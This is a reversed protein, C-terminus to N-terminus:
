GSNIYIYQNSMTSLFISFYSFQIRQCQFTWHMLKLRIQCYKPIIVNAKHIKVFACCRLLDSFIDNECYKLFCIEDKLIASSSFSIPFIKGYYSSISRNCMGPMVIKLEANNQKFLLNTLFHQMKEHQYFPKTRWGSM